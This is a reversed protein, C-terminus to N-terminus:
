RDSLEDCLRATAPPHYDEVDRDAIKKRRRQIKGLAEVCRDYEELVIDFAHEPLAHSARRFGRPALKGIREFGPLHAGVLGLRESSKLLHNRTESLSRLAISPSEEPQEM